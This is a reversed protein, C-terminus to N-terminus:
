RDEMAAPLRWVARAIAAWASPRWLHRPEVIRVAMWWLAPHWRRVRVAITMTAVNPDRGLSCSTTKITIPSRWTGARAM